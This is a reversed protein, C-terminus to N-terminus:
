LGVAKSRLHHKLRQVDENGITDLEAPVNSIADGAPL